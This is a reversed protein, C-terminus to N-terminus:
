NAPRVFNKHLFFTSVPSRAITTGAADIVILQLTHTGRDVENLTARLSTGPESIPGGDFLLQARHGFSTQLNPALQGSVSVSQVNRLTEENAPTVIEVTTYPLAQKGSEDPTLRIQNRTSPIITPENVEVKKAGEHPKDSYTVNGEADVSRYVEALTAVSIVASLLLVGLRSFIM